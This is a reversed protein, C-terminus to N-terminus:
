VGIIKSAYNPFKNSYEFVSEKPVEIREVKETFPDGASNPPTTSLFKVTKANLSTAGVVNITEPM